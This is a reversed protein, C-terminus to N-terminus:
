PYQIEAPTPYRLNQRLRERNHFDFYGHLGAELCPVYAYDMFSIHTYKAPANLPAV